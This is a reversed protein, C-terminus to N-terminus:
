GKKISQLLSDNLDDFSVNERKALLVLAAPPLLNGDFGDRIIRNMEAAVDTEQIKKARAIRSMLEACPDHQEFIASTPKFGIPITIGAVDFLPSYVGNEQRILRDDEARKLLLNAQETSMWKRDLAYYYVLENKRMGTKRTHKFPAAVTIQFTM